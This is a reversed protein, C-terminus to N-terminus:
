TFVARAWFRILSRASPAIYTSLNVKILRTGTDLSFSPSILFSRDLICDSSDDGEGEEEEEEKGERKEHDIVSWSFEALAATKTHSNLLARHRLDM